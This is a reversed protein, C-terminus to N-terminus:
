VVASNEHSFGSQTVLVKSYNVVTAKGSSYLATINKIGYLDDGCHM